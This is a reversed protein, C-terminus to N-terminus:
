INNKERLSQIQIFKNLDEETDIDLDYAKDMIYPYENDNLSIDYNLIDSVKNIYIAGNVKYFTSLDQRRITSNTNLISNLKGNADLSRMFVPHESVKTVSIISERQGPVILQIAEDIHYPLRLPQTPQLLVVYDFKEYNLLKLTHRLTDITKAEDTALERPRLEPVSIGRAVCLEAIQLSDTSVYVMDIYRSQRAATITYEILPKGCVDVINKNPIGKSGGRAPIIAIIKKNQFM